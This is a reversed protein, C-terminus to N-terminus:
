ASTESEFDSSLFIGQMAQILSARHDVVRFLITVLAFVSILRKIVEGTMSIARHGFLTSVQLLGTSFNSFRYWKM